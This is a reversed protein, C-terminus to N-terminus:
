LKNIIWNAQWECGAKNFHNGNDAIFSQLLTQDKIEEMIVPCLNLKLIDENHMFVLDAKSLIYHVLAKYETRFISKNILSYYSRAFEYKGKPYWFSDKKSLKIHGPTFAIVKRFFGNEISIHKYNQSVNEAHQLIDYDEEFYSVRGPSTIQFIIKDFTNHRLVDDMLFTQFTLSTGEVAYNEIHWNPKLKSLAYPWSYKNDVANIGHTWSCGFTAIKM